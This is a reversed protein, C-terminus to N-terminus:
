GEGETENDGLVAFVTFSYMTGPILETIDAKPVTSTVNTVFTDNAVEIRYTYLKSATDNVEWTLNVSTMDVYEAKLGYVPSPKTYLYKTIGEGETENDAAVAFVTFRYMTGPILETIEAKAVRSTVNTVFTDNAVEIRYTYSDSAADNVEWTLNVSTVGVYEAELGYVPSPKTYVSISSGEGETENDAAVAFVTFSYMTGPILETIEAKPARSTVNTVFTDNAVEIRYMYSNSAADNVEWTLNVSTMDVYEAKLGFVPSPKTYISICSGEGETENDGLVAFVTFSYMTGPILETIEAKPVRSTVNMVFTDNAVEIRYTYLKSATDKVEWTLNVSTMGVYEAKIGYVPSSETF